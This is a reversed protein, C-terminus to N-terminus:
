DIEFGGVRDSALVAVRSLGRTNPRNSRMECWTRETHKGYPVQNVCWGESGFLNAGGEYLFDAIESEIWIARGPVPQELSLGITVRPRENGPRARWGLTDQM